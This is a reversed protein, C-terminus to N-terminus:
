FRRDRDVILAYQHLNPEFWLDWVRFGLGHIFQQVLERAAIDTGGVTVESHHLINALNMPGGGIRCVAGSKASIADVILELTTEANRTLTPLTLPTDLIHSVPIERGADDEIATATVVYSGDSQKRVTFKGPNTTQNYDSVIKKLVAEESSAPNGIDPAEAYTSQFAGGAPIVFGKKGPHAAHWQAPAIDVLVRDSLYPPDEYHVIWGYEERLAEM